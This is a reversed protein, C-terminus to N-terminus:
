LEDCTAGSPRLCLPNVQAAVVLFVVRAVPRDGSLDVPAYQWDHASLSTM